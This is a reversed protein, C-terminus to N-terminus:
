NIDDNTVSYAEKLFDEYILPFDSIDLSKLKNSYIGILKSYEEVSLVQYGNDKCYNYFMCYSIYNAKNFSATFLALYRNKFSPKAGNKIKQKKDKAM